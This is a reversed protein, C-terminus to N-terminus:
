MNFSMFNTPNLDVTDVIVESFIAHIAFKNQIFM